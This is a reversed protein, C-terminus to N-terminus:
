CVCPQVPLLPQGSYPYGWPPPKGATLNGATGILRRRGAVDNVSTADVADDCCRM